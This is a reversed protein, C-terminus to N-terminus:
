AVRLEDQARLTPLPLRVRFVAGEGPTGEATITGEMQAVIERCIALGLGLGGFRRTSSNDAQQFREFLRGATDADFGVGTDSIEFVVEPGMRRVSLGVLGHDTFKVANELLASLVQQLRVPDTEVEGQADPTLQLRFTLGKLAAEHSSRRACAEVLPGLSVVRRALAGRGSTLDVMELLESLLHQLADASEGIVKTMEMQPQNLSTTALVQAMGIVGNLPTRLEHSMNALFEDKARNAARAQDIATQLQENARLLEATRDAVRRELEENARALAENAEWVKAEAQKRGVQTQVRALAVAFDVPKTIYDNAGLNLAEVVDESQSKATVM